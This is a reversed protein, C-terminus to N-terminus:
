KSLMYTIEIYGISATRNKNVLILTQDTLEKIAINDGDINIKKNEADIYYDGSDSKGQFESYMKGNSKFEMFDAASGKHTTSNEVGSYNSKVTIFDIQWKWQIKKEYESGSYEDEKKCSIFNIIVLTLLLIHLHKLKM